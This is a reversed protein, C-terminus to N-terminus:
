GLSKQGHVTRTAKFNQKNVTMTGEADKTFTQTTYFSMEGDDSAGIVRFRNGIRWSLRGPRDDRLVLWSVFDMPRNRQEAPDARKWEPAASHFKHLYFVDKFCGTLESPGAHDEHWEVHRFFVSDPGFTVAAYAGVGPVGQRTNNDWRLLSLRLSSPATITVTKTVKESESTLEITAQGARGPAQWELKMDDEGHTQGASTRWSGPRNPLFTMKEGIGVTSREASPAGEEFMTTFSLARKLGSEVPHKPAKLRSSTSSKGPAVDHADHAPRQKGRSRDHDRESGM